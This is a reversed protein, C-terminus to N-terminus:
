CRFSLIRIVTEKRLNLGSRARRLKAGMRPWNQRKLHRLTVVEDEDDVDDLCNFWRFLPARLPPYSEARALVGHVEEAYRQNLRCNPNVTRVLHFDSINITRARM